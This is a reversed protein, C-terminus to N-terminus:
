NATTIGTGEDTQLHFMIEVCHITPKRTLCAGLSDTSADGEALNPLALGLAGDFFKM